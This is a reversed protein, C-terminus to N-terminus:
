AGMTGSFQPWVWHGAVFGTQFTVLPHASLWLRVCDDSSEWWAWAGVVLAVFGLSRLGGAGPDIGPQYWWMHAMWIGFIIPVPLCGSAAKFAASITNGKVGDKLLVYDWTLIAITVVLTVVLTLRQANTLTM